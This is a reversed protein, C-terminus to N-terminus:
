EPFVPITGIIPLDVYRKVDEPTKITNDLYEILFVIGVGLMMGLLLAIAINMKINPKVPNKPLVAIDIIQVNEVDMIEVVKLQFVEAMKNAIDMSRQPDTDQATIQIIRTDKVSNVNIKNALTATSTNLGLEEIVMGTVMRSKVLERYDNVLRDGLLLDNYLVTSDKETDKGVYITTDSQYVPDLYFISVAGSVLAALAGGIVIVWWRRIIIRFVDRLEIETM